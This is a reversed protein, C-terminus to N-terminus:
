IPCAYGLVPKVSVLASYLNNIAKTTLHRFDITRKLSFYARLIKKCLEEKAPRYSGSITFIM